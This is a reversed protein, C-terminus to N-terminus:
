FKSQKTSVRLLHDLFKIFAVKDLVRPKVPPASPKTERSPSVSIMIPKVTLPFSSSSKEDLIEAMLGDDPSGLMLKPKKNGVEGSREGEEGLGDVDM